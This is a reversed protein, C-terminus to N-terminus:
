GVKRARRQQVDWNFVRATNVECVTIADKLRGLEEAAEALKAECAVRNAELMAKAEDLPYECMVGAGLWLGVSEVDQVTAKAYIGDAIEFDVAAEEESGRKAVLADVAELSKKIGPLKEALRAQGQLTQGEYARLRRMREQQDVLVDEVARGRMYADIDEIFVSKAVDADRARGSSSEGAM